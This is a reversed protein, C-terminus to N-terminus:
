LNRLMEPWSEGYNCHETLKRLEVVYAALGEGDNRNQSHFKFREVRESPRSAFHKEQMKSTTQWSISNWDKLM